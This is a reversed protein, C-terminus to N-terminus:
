QITMVSYLSTHTVKLYGLSKGYVAQILLRLFERRPGGLDASDEGSFVVSPVKKFGFVKEEVARTCTQLLKSRLVVVSSTEYYNIVDKQFEEILQLLEIDEAKNQLNDFSHSIAAKVLEYKEVEEWDGWLFEEPVASVGSCTGTASSDFAPYKVNSSVGRITVELDEDCNIVKTKKMPNELSDLHSLEETSLDEPEGMAM